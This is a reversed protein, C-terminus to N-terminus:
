KLASPQYPTCNASPRPTHPYLILVLSSLLCQNSNYYTFPFGCPIAPASDTAESLTPVGSALSTPTTHALVDDHILVLIYLIGLYRM